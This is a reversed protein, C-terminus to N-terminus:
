IDEKIENIQRQRDAILPNDSKGSGAVMKLELQVDVMRAVLQGLIPDNLGVSSPLIIQDLNRNKDIYDILYQYYHDFMILETREIGLREMKEYLRVTESSLDTIVNKDKFRELQLDAKNLSDSIAQLQENLFEITCTAVQNKKDLDYEQYSRILGNLFDIGKSPVADSITLNIVGAGQEAWDAQLRGVYQGTLSAENRYTMLFPVNNFQNLVNKSRLTVCLKLGGYHITDGFAFTKPGEVPPDTEGNPSLTYQITDSAKIYFRQVRIAGNDVVKMLFPVYDYAESSRLNGERYFSVGFNQAVLVDRILPYSKLIHLENYYNRYSVFLPNNGMVSMTPTERGEKILISSYIPYIRTAYRNRLFATLLAVALCAVIVYWYRICRNLVRKFDISLGEEKNDEAFIDKPLDKM